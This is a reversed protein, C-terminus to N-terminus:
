QNANRRNDNCNILAVDKELAMIQSEPSFVPHHADYAALDCGCIFTVYNDTWTHFLHPM